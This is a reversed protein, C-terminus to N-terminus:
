VIMLTHTFPNFLQLMIQLILTDKYIGEVHVAACTFHPNPQFTLNAPGTDCQVTYLMKCLVHQSKIVPLSQLITLRLRTPTVSTTQLLGQTGFTFHKIEPMSKFHMHKKSESPSYTYCLHM